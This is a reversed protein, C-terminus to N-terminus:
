KKIVQRILYKGWDYLLPTSVLLRLLEVVLLLRLYGRSINSEVGLLNRVLQQPQSSASVREERFNSSIYNVLWLALPDDLETQIEEHRSIVHYVPPTGRLWFPVGLM